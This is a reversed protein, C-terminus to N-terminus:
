GAIAFPLTLEATKPSGQDRLKLVLQYDGPKLSPLPFSVTAHIERTRSRASWELKAFDAAKGLVLGGPTRIEVDVALLVKFGDAEALFGYGIPELYLLLTDGTKFSADARPQYNGFGAVSEAFLAQRFQLPSAIWFAAAAKDFAALASAANGAALLAEAEAARDAVDGAGAAGVRLFVLAALLGVALHRPFHLRIM